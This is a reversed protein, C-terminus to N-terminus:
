LEGEDAFSYYKSKEATVIIHDMLNLDMTMCALKVKKTIAEDAVSRSLSGSPHNHFLMVGEAKLTLAILLLEKVDCICGTSSGTSLLKHGIVKNARSLFMAFMHEKHDECDDYLATFAYDVADKSSSIFKLVDVSSYRRKLKVQAEQLYM